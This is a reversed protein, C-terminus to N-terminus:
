AGPLPPKRVPRRYVPAAVMTSVAPGSLETMAEATVNAFPSSTRATQVSSAEAEKSTRSRHWNWIPSVEKLQSSTKLRVAGPSHSRRHLSPCTRFISTGVPASSMGMGKGSPRQRNPRTLLAVPEPPSGTSAPLTPGGCWATTTSGGHTCTVLTLEHGSTPVLQTVDSPALQWRQTCQTFTPTAVGTRFPLRTGQGSNIWTSTILSGTSPSIVNGAGGPAPSGSWHVMSRDNLASWDGDVSVGAYDYQPLGRLRGPRVRRIVLWRRRVRQHDGPQRPRLPPRRSPAEGLAKSGGNNWSNLASSDNYARAAVQQQDLWQHYVGTVIVTMGSAILVLGLLLAVLRVRGRWRM